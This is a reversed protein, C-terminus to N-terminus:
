VAREKVAREDIMAAITAQQERCIDGLLMVAELARGVPHEGPRGRSVQALVAQEVARVFERARLTGEGHTLMLTCVDADTLVAAYVVDPM